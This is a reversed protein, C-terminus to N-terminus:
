HDDTIRTKTHAVFWSTLFLGVFTSIFWPYYLIFRERMSMERGPMMYKHYVYNIYITIQIIIFIIAFIGYVNNYKVKEYHNMNLDLLLGIQTLIVLGPLWNRITEWLAVIHAKEKTAIANIRIIKFFTVFMLAVVAFILVFLPISKANNAHIDLTIIITFLITAILTFVWSFMYIHDNMKVSQFFTSASGEDNDSM